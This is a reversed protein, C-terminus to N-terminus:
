CIIVFISLYSLYDANKRCFCYCVEKAQMITSFLNKAATSTKEAAHTLNESITYRSRSPGSVM